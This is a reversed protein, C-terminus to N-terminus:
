DIYVIYQIHSRAALDCSQLTHTDCLYLVNSTHNTAHHRPKSNYYTRLRIYLYISHMHVIYYTYSHVKILHIGAQM